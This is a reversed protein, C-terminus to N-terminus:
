GLAGGGAGGGVNIRRAQSVTGTLGGAHYAKAVLEYEGTQDVTWEATFPATHSSAVQQGDALRLSTADVEVVEGTVWAIGRDRLARHIRKAGSALAADDTLPRKGMLTIRLEPHRARMAFALEIGAAGAGVVALHAGTKECRADVAPLDALLQTLPKVYFLASHASGFRPEPHAGTNISLRDFRLEPLEAGGLAEPRRVWVRRSTTEIRSVEARIFWGGAAETLRAVDIFLDSEGYQRALFGPLMGSYPAMSSPAVVILRWEPDPQMMLRRIVSIHAHGAGILLLTRRAGPKAEWM